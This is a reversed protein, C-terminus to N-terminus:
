KKPKGKGKTKDLEAERKKIRERVPAYEKELKNVKDIAKIREEAVKPFGKSKPNETAYKSYEEWAKKADDIRKQRELMDAQLFKVNAVVIMNDKAFNSALQLSSQSEQYDGKLMLSHGLLYHGLPNEPANTLAERFAKSAGEFDRAIAFALGKKIGEYFPSIGVVGKPDRRVEGSAAPAPAKKADDAAHATGMWALAVMMGGGVLWKRSRM